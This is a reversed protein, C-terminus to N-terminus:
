AVGSLLAPHHFTDVRFLFALLFCVFCFHSSSVHKIRKSDASSTNQGIEKRRGIRRKKKKNKKQFITVCDFSYAALVVFFSSFSVFSCPRWTTYCCCDIYRGCFPSTKKSLPVNELQNGTSLCVCLYSMYHRPSTICVAAHHMLSSPFTITLSSMNVLCDLFATWDRRTTASIEDPQITTAPGTKWDHRTVKKIKSKQCFHCKKTKKNTKKELGVRTNSESNIFDISRVRMPNTTHARKEQTVSRNSRDRWDAGLSQIRWGDTFRLSIKSARKLNEKLTL